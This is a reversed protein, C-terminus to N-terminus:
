QKLDQIVDNKQLKIRNEYDKLRAKVDVKSKNETDEAEKIKTMKLNMKKEESLLKRVSNLEGGM